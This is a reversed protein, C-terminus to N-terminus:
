IYWDGLCFNYYTKWLTFEQGNLGGKGKRWVVRSPGMNGASSHSAIMKNRKQFASPTKRNHIYLYDDVTQKVTNVPTVFCRGPRKKSVVFTSLPRSITITNFSLSRFPGKNCRHLLCVFHGRKVDFVICLCSNHRITYLVNRYIYTQRQLLIIYKRLM